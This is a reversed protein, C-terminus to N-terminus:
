ADERKAQLYARTAEEGRALYEVTDGDSVFQLPRDALAALRKRAVEFEESGVQTVVGQLRRHKPWFISPHARGKRVMKTM